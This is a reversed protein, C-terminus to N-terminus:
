AAAPNGIGIPRASPSGAAAEAPVHGAELWDRYAQWDTNLPDAPIYAGDAARRTMDHRVAGTIPDLITQYM